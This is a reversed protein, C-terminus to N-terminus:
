IKVSDIFRTGRCFHEYFGAMYEKAKLKKYRAPQEENLLLDAAPEIDKEPDLGHFMAVSIREKEANTVARHVPSKFIGNSMIEMYDAINILLIHPSNPVTHWVGDRLVQLGGVDKDM